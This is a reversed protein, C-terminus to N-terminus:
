PNYGTRLAARLALHAAEVQPAGEFIIRDLATLKALIEDQRM